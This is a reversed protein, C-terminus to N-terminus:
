KMSEKLKAEASSAREEDNCFDAATRRLKEDSCSHNFIMLGAQRDRKTCEEKEALEILKAMLPANWGGSEVLDAVSDYGLSRLRAPDPRTECSSLYQKLESVSM